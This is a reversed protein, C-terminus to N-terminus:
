FRLPLADLKAVYDKVKQYEGSSTIFSLGIHYGGKNAQCSKVECQVMVPKRSNPLALYMQVVIDAPCGSVAKFLCGGDSINVIIGKIVADKADGSLDSHIIAKMRVPYRKGHRLPRRDMEEPFSTFFLHAPKRSQAIVETKFGVMEGQNVFHASWKAGVEMKAPLGSVVPSEFLLFNNKKWALLHTVYRSRLTGLAVLNVRLGPKLYEQNEM